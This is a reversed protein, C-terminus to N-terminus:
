GNPNTRNTWTRNTDRGNRGQNRPLSAEARPLRWRWSNRRVSNLMRKHLGKLTRVYDRRKEKKQDTHLEADRDWQRKLDQAAMAVKTKRLKTWWLGRSSKAELEIRKPSLGGAFLLDRMWNVRWKLDASLDDRQSVQGLLDMAALASMSHETDRFRFSYANAPEIRNLHRGTMREITDATDNWLQLVTPLDQAAQDTTRTTHDLATVTIAAHFIKTWRKVDLASALM